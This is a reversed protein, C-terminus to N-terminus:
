QPWLFACACLVLMLRWWLQSIDVVGWADAQSIYGYHLKQSIEKQTYIKNSEL